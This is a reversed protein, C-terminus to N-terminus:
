IWWYVLIDMLKGIILRVIM